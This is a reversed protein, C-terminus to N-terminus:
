CSQKPISLIYKEWLSLNELVLSRAKLILNNREYFDDWCDVDVIIPINDLVFPPLYASVLVFPSLLIGSIHILLIMGAPPKLEKFIPELYDLHVYESPKIILSFQVRGSNKAFEILRETDSDTGFGFQDILQERLWPPILIIISGYLPLM